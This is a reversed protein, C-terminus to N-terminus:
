YSLIMTQALKKITYINWPYVHGEANFGDVKINVGNHTFINGGGGNASM